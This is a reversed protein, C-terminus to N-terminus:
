KKARTYTVDEFWQSLLYACGAEKHEHSPEFSGMCCKLARLAKKTDVGAKPTWVCDKVGFFFWDSVVQLWQSAVKGGPTRRTTQGNATVSASVKFEDPIDAYPPLIKMAGGGFVADIENVEPVTVM